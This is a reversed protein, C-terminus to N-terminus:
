ANKQMPAVTAKSADQGYMDVRPGAAVTQGPGIMAEAKLYQKKSRLSFFIALAIGIFTFIVAEGMAIGYVSNLEMSESFQPPAVAAIIVYSVMIVASIVLTILAVVFGFGIYRSVVANLDFDKLNRMIAMEGIELYRNLGHSYELYMFFTLAFVLSLWFEARGAPNLLVGINGFGAGALILVASAMTFIVGFSKGLINLLAMIGLVLGTVSFVVVMIFMMFAETGAPPLARTSMISIFINLAVNAFLFIFAFIRILGIKSYRGMIESRTPIRVQPPKVRKDLEDEVHPQTGQQEQPPQAPQPMPGGQPYRAPGIGQLNPPMGPQPQEYGYQGQM